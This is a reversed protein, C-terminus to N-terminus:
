SHVMANTAEGTLRAIASHVDDTSFYVDQLHRPGDTQFATRAHLARYGNVFLMDGGHLRFRVQNARESVLRGLMRYARYWEVLDPHDFPLPQMLQNSFRLHNFRGHVDRRVVPNRSFGDAHSSYQRFGVEVRSLVDVAAPDLAQLQELVCWGDVVISDGGSAENVLMSLIQGSPPHSYQANDNHPPLGESTFAVNYGAPDVKVDFIFGLSSDILTLGISRAFDVVTGPERPADTVVVAGDRRFTEFMRRHTDADALVADHEFRGLQYDGTWLTVTYEGRSAATRIRAWSDTTYATQHGDVWTLHLEEGVVAVAAVTPADSDLWPQRRREDTQVIRCEPCPCNDRLWDNPLHVVGSQLTALVGDGTAAADVFSGAPLATGRPGMDVHSFIGNM